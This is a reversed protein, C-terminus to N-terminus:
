QFSCLSSKQMKEPVQKEFVNCM